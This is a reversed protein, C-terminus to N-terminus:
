GLEESINGNTLPLSPELPIGAVLYKAFLDIFEKPMEINYKINYDLLHNYHQEIQPLIIKNNKSLNKKALLPMTNRWNFALLQEDKDDLNFKSIPIVHDIHWEKTRNELTYNVNNHNMWQLYETLSCGLYQITKAQKKKRLAIFIRSRINRRFKEVPEDRECNRCKLRNYRFKDIHKIESCSSCKKNNNGITDERIKQREIVKNHKFISATQILQLRHNEDNEYKTRRKMNNCAKCLVRAKLFLSVAKTENCTKCTRQINESIIASDYKKKRSSNDCAKCINRNKIFKDTEKEVCCRSCSKLSPKTDGVM